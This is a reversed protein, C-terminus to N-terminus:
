DEAALQDDVSSTSAGRSREGRRVADVVARNFADPHSVNSLHAAGDIVTLTSGPLYEHIKEAMSPPTSQDLAGVLIASPATITVLRETLDIEAIARCSAAYGDPSTLELIGRIRAVIDPHENRYDESFWRSMTADVLPAMGHFTATRARDAFQLRADNSYRSTTDALVLSRIRNPWTVAFQQAIMGGMSIGVLHASVIGLADLMGVLDHAFEDLSYPGLSVDTHGHGRADYSYVSCISALAEIQSAWIRHDVGLAHILILSPGTGKREYYQAIGNAIVKMASYM